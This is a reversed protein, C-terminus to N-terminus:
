RSFGHESQWPLAEDLAEPIGREVGTGPVLGSANERQSELSFGVPEM